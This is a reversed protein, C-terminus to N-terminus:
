RKFINLIKSLLGTSFGKSHNLLINVVNTASEEDFLCYDQFCVQGLSFPVRDVKGNNIGHQRCIHELGQYFSKYNEEIYTQLTEILKDGVQGTKDVKTLMLYIADTDQAFIKTQEIYRLAADLYVSQPLNEYKRNEGGYELVFFHVKRGKSRNDKLVNTLTQLSTTEQDTLFEGADSKYMCRILEGALDICTIPHTRGKEDLLDFGMEYSTYISTGEPLSGVTGNAKFLQALQTMYGYGQCQNNKIMSKAVKGNNAVSLIAGLACTKGSSPIGWFYIETSSKYIRQLINKPRGLITSKGDDMLYRIFKPDVGIAGLDPYTLYANNILQSVIDSNLLNHDKRLADLLINSSRTADLLNVIENYIAKNKDLINKNTQIANIRNILAEVDFVTGAQLGNILKRAAPVHSDNPYDKIFKELTAVDSKDLNRWIKAMEKKQLTEIANRADEIHPSDPYTEIFQNYSDLTNLGQTKQWEKEHSENLIRDIDEKISKSLYYSGNITGTLDDLSVIGSKIFNVLAEATYQDINDFIEQKTPTVM